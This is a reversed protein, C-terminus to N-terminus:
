TKERRWTADGFCENQTLNLPVGARLSDLTAEGNQSAFRAERARSLSVPLVHKHTGGFVVNEPSAQQRLM